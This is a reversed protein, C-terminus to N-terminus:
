YALDGCCWSNGTMLRIHILARLVALIHLLFLPFFNWPTDLRRGPGHSIGDVRGVNGHGGDFDLPLTCLVTWAQKWVRVESPILKM